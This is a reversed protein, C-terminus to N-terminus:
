RLGAAPLRAAVRAPILQKAIGVVQGVVEAERHHAFVVPACPSLPHPQLILTKEQLSCWACAYGSRHEVFYVPREYESAWRGRGTEVQRRQVDIQLLAGPPILPYMMWDELGVYGYRYDQLNLQDLLALPIKGWAEIMRTLYATSRLSLGPDLRIPINIEQQEDEGAGFMHTKSGVHEPQFKRQDSFLETLDLGYWSLAEQFSLGYIACLSYLRHVTPVAGRNEVESLRSIPLAFEPNLKANAIATSAQEVDRYTLGLRTRLQRLKFGAGNM